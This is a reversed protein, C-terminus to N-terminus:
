TNVEEDWEKEVCRVFFGQRQGAFVPIVVRWPRIDQADLDERKAEPAQSILCDEVFAIDRRAGQKNYEAFNGM